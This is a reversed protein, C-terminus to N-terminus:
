KPLIKPVTFYKSIVNPISNKQIFKCVFYRVFNSKIEYIYKYINFIICNNEWAFYNLKDHILKILAM